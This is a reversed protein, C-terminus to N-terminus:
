QRQCMSTSEDLAYGDPCFLTYGGECTMTGQKDTRTQKTECMVDTIDIGDPCSCDNEGVCSGSSCSEKRWENDECPDFVERYINPRCTPVPCPDTNCTGGLKTRCEQGVLEFLSDPCEITSGEPCTYVELNEVIEPGQKPTKTLKCFPTVTPQIAGPQQAERERAERDRERAQQQARLQAQQQARIQAQQQARIQAQQQERIQAQQQARLQAQQQPSPGGGSGGGFPGFGQNRIYSSSMIM